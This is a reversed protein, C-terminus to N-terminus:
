SRDRLNRIEDVIQEVTVDQPRLRSAARKVVVANGPRVALRELQDRIFGSLSMGQSAARVRLADVTADPVNRIQIVPM